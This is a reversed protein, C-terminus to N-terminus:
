PLLVVPPLTVAPLGFPLCLSHILESGGDLYPHRQPVSLDGHATVGAVSRHNPMSLLVM